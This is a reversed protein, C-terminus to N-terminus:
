LFGRIKFSRFLIGFYFIVQDHFYILLKQNANLHFILKIKLYKKPFKNPCNRQIINKNEIAYEADFELGGVVCVCLQLSMIM